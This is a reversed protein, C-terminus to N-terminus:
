LAGAFAQHLLSQELAELAILKKQYLSKLRETGAAFRDFDDVIQRQKGISPLCIRVREIEKASVNQQAAGHGAEQLNERFARSSLFRFVFARDGGNNSMVIRAVRQNLVAPLHEKQILGVRGINGTLSVLIDGDNLVFRELTRDALQVYRPSSLTIEGDQVNGIRIVFYGTEAYETSRFAFGGQIDVLDGLTKEEWGERCQAFSSQLHNEFLARVNQLNKEANAKASALGGSAEDLIAVIRHQEPLSPLPFQAAEYFSKQLNPITTGITNSRLAEVVPDTELAYRLFSPLVRNTDPRLIRVFNSAFLGGPEDVLWAKGVEGSTTVAIDGAVLRSADAERRTFFRQAYGRLHGDRSIDGNRVVKVPVISQGQSSEEGWFGSRNLSVVGALSVPTWNGSL